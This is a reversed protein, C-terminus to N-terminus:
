LQQHKMFWGGVQSSPFLWTRGNLVLNRTPPDDGGMQFMHTSNSWKWFLIGKSHWWRGYGKIGRILPSLLTKFQLCKIFLFLFALNLYRPSIHIHFYSGISASIVCLTQYISSSPVIVWQTDTDNVTQRCKPLSRLLPPFAVCWLFFVDGFM